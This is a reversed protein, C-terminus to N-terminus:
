LEASPSKAKSRPMNWLTQGAGSWNMRSPKANRLAPRPITHAVDTDTAVVPRLREWDVSPEVSAHDDPMASLTQALKQRRRESRLADIAAYRTSQHLWGSLAPHRVLVAAKRALDSFVKQAIEEALHARGGARRLAAAYVLDLNQSVLEAFAGQDHHDGHRRLLEADTSM